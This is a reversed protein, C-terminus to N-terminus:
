KLDMKTNDWRQRPSYFLKKELLKKKKSFFQKHKECNGHKSCAGGIKDDEIDHDQYHKFFNGSASVV